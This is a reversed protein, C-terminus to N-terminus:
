LIIFDDKKIIFKKCSVYWDKPLIKLEYFLFKIILLLWIIYFPLNTKSARDKLVIDKNKEKFISFEINLNNEPEKYQIKYGKIITDNINQKWVVKHFSEPTKNLFYQMKFLTSKMNDTFIVVDIDSKSPFYDPRQVSGFFYLKTDLYIKLKEFFIINYEPIKNKITEM